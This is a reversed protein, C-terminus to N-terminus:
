SVNLDTKYLLPQGGLVCYCTYSEANLVNHFVPMNLLLISDSWPIVYNGWVCLSASRTVFIAEQLLHISKKVQVIQTNFHLM